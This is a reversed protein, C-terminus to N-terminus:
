TGGDRTENHQRFYRLVPSSVLMALTADDDFDTENLFNGLSQALLEHGSVSPSARGLFELLHTGLITKLHPDVEQWLKGNGDEGVRGHDRSSIGDTTILLIEGHTPDKSLALTTPASTLGTPGVTGFLVDRGTASLSTHGILVDTLCWPWRRPLFQWYDGRILWVSGNGLYSVVYYGPLDLVFLLTTELPSPANDYLDRHGAYFAPIAEGVSKWLDEVTDIRVQEGSQELRLAAAHIADTALRAALHCDVSTGLGDAIAVLSVRDGAFLTCADENTSKAAKSAIALISAKGSTSLAQLSSRTETKSGNAPQGSFAPPQPPGM